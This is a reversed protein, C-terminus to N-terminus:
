EITEDNIGDSKITVSVDQGKFRLLKYMSSGCDIVSM